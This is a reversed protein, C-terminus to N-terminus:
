LRSYTDNRENLDAQTRATNQAAREKALVLRGRELAPIWTVIGSLRAAFSDKRHDALYRNVRTALDAPGTLSELADRAVLVAHTEPAPRTIYEGSQKDQVFRDFEDPPLGRLAKIDEIAYDGVAQIHAITTEAVADRLQGPDTNAVIQVTLADLAAEKARPDELEQAQQWQETYPQWVATAMNHTEQAPPKFDPTKM